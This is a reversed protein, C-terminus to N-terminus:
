CPPLWNQELHGDENKTTLLSGTLLRDVKFEYDHHHICSNHYMKGDPMAVWEDKPIILTNTYYNWAGFAASGIVALTMKSM